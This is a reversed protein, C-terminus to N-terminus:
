LECDISIIHTAFFSAPKALFLADHNGENDELVHRQTHYPDIDEYSSNDFASANASNDEQVNRGSVSTPGDHSTNLAEVSGDDETDVEDLQSTVHQNTEDVPFSSSNAYLESNAPKGLISSMSVGPPHEILPWEDALPKTQSSNLNYGAAPPAGTDHHNVIHAPPAKAQPRGKKVIDAMSVQGPVGGWASQYGSSPQSSSSIGDDALSTVKNEAAVSDSCCVYCMFSCMYAISFTCVWAKLAYGLVVSTVFYNVFLLISFDM